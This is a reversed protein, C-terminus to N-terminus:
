SHSKYWRLTQRLGDIIPVTAQWKLDRQAKQPSLCSRNIDQERAPAYEILPVEGIVEGIRVALERISIETGTALNYVGRGQQLALAMGQAVDTVYIFDRTQQGTGDILIAKGQLLKNCFIAVVGGEGGTKQRPGYVNAPRAVVYPVGFDSAYYALYKEITLKSLAYPSGPKLTAEEAAPTIDPAGYVAASSVFLFKKLGINKVAELVNLTGVINIDADHAADDRSAPASSQAALHCVYSPKLRRALSRLNGSRIDLKHFKAAPAVYKKKGSSLDDVVTVQLGARLLAEVLHSGIFGAGGTVLVHEM